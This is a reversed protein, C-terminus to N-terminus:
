FAFPDAFALGQIVINDGPGGDLIDLGDGGLLVDDGDGGSLIDAGNGGILVDDGAGGNGIFQFSGDFGTAEIVDNGALGNIILRDTGDFGLVQVEAGLGQVTVVSGSRTIIIVDDGSTGNVTVTDAQGDSGGGAASLDIRVLSVDTGSLDGVTINDLGGFADFGVTEVDDLDMTVNAVDRAFRVRGGNAAIDIVEGVNSGNFDMTDVGAQGEVVDNDDGPNWVFVDDGAGMLALDDGDQGNFFEAGASGVMVDAGLGGFMSLRIQGASLGSADMVDAGAGGDIILSDLAGEAQTIVVNAALGKVQVAGAASDIDIADAGATGIVRVSDAQGDGSAGSAGLSLKVTTVDTGSLDGIVISDVGGLGDFDITEVDNLDMTVAAVDRFLRARGSNASIAISESAGSGDFNLVDLGDQGEVVDNDDGPNWTFTDDGAGLLALDNGRNGDVLDSGDGGILVDAGSSGMLTDAGAGGDLTLKITTALTTANLADNGGFGEVVLQDVTDIGRVAVTASLGAVALSTGSGLVEVSDGGNTGKVTVTDAQADGATGGGVSALDINITTVDTGSLDHVTINDVGGLAQLDIREVDDLDMTIAGVDRLVRARGGSASVQMSENAGSGNFRLADLGAQGEVVDSGDGPDWVFTDDGAGLLAVDNGQNGDVQDDGAGGLLLDAGNGGGITDNGLGGDVTLKVLAALNGSASFVDNGGNMNIVVNEMGGADIAFPAPDLRDVRVRTGSASVSFTEAGNGGNVQATDIGSGGEFVDSDDGPNWILLDDGAEGFLGDDGDGGTLTDNGSGGFLQDAGGKGNLVDNGSEGFLQDAGSGGTVVDNGAGGFLSARPLAGNAEDLSLVDDGGLGFVNLLKVNAVTPIGGTPIVAGGNVLIKGAADRSITVSNALNDAITTLIGSALPFSSTVAM